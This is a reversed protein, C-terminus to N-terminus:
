TQMIRKISEKSDTTVAVAPKPNMLDNVQANMGHRNILARRIDGDTVTGILKGSENLVLGIGLLKNEELVEIARAMTDSGKLVASQWNKTFM